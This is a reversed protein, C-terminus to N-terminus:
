VINLATLDTIEYPKKVAIAACKQAIYCNADTVGVSTGHQQIINHASIWAATPRIQDGFVSTPKGMIQAIVIAVTYSEILCPLGEQLHLNDYMLGGTDGLNNLATTRANQIATGGPIVFEVATEDMMKQVAAVINQFMAASSEEVLRPSNDNLAPTLLWGLRFNYTVKSQLLTVIDNLYPQYTSYDNSLYSRQQLLIIDWEAATLAYDINKTATTSWGGGTHYFDFADYNTGNSIYDYHMQLTSASKYLIGFSIEVGPMMSELLFPFYMFADRSYSNGISLIKIKRYDKTREYIESVQLLMDEAIDSITPAPGDGASKRMVVQLMYSNGDNPVTYDITGGNQQKAYVQTLATGDVRYVRLYNGGGTSVTQMQVRYTHGNLLNYVQCGDYSANTTLVGSANYFSGVTTVEWLNPAHIEGNITAIDATNKDIDDQLNTLELLHYPIVWADLAAGESVWVSTWGHGTQILYVVQIYYEGGDNPITLVFDTDASYASIQSFADNNKKFLRVNNAVYNQHVYYTKNNEVPIFCSNYAANNTWVGSANYFGGYGTTVALNATKEFMQYISNAKEAGPTLSQDIITQIDSLQAVASEIVPLLGEVVESVTLVERIAPTGVVDSYLPSALQLVYTYGDNPCTYDIVGGGQIKYWVQTYVGNEVRFVRTAPQAQGETTRRQPYIHYRQGPTMILQCSDYWNNATIVGSANYYSKSMTVTFLNEGDMLITDLLALGSDVKSWATDYTLFVVEDEVVIGNFNVYTGNEKAIYFVRQDPTGPNTSPTALGMFQYGVGLSDIIAKLLQNLLAGTIENNANTTIVDNVSAKLTAYNAM